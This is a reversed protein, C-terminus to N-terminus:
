IGNPVGIRMDIGNSELSVTVTQDADWEAYEFVEDSGDSLAFKGTDGTNEFYFFENGFPYYKIGVPLASRTLRMTLDLTISGIGTAIFQEVDGTVSVDVTLVSYAEQMQADTAEGPFITIRRITFPLDNDKCIEGSIPFDNGCPVWDGFSINLM